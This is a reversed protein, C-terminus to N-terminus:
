DLNSDDVESDAEVLEDAEFGMEPESEDRNAQVLHPNVHSFSQLDPAFHEHDLAKDFDKKETHCTFLRRRLEADSSHYPLAKTLIELAQDVKKEEMLIDTFALVAPLYHPDLNVAKELCNRASNKRRLDNSKLMVDGYIFYSRASEGLEPVANKAYALATSKRDSLLFCDCLIRQVEFRYPAHMHASLIYAQAKALDKKELSLCAQLILAEVSNRNIQYAKQVFLLARPEKKDKSAYHHALVLWPEHFHEGEICCRPGMSVTLDELQRFLSEKHLCAAYSDIRNFCLPDSNYAIKFVRIAEACNGEHYHAEALNTLVSANKEFKSTLQNFLRIATKSDPSHLCCQARIWTPYWPCQSKIEDPIIQIIEEYSVKGAKCLKVVADTCFPEKRIIDMYTDRAKTFSKEQYYLNALAKLVKVSREITHIKELITRAEKYEHMEIRCLHIKYKIENDDFPSSYSSSRGIDGLHISTKCRKSIRRFGCDNLILAQEYARLARRFFNEKFLAEGFYFYLSVRLQQNANEKATTSTQQDQSIHSNPSELLIELLQVVSSYQEEKILRLTVNLLASHEM